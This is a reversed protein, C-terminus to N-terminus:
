NAACLVPRRSTPADPEAGRRALFRPVDAGPIPRGLYYGQAEDYGEASVRALQEATEVGEATTTVGLSVGLDAVVRVIAECDRRKGLDSVFSRDIKIRDFPFSRLYSLSSYGTGFDDMAISLGLSRLQQLKALTADGDQLLVGETIELELRSARLGSTRLASLVSATPNGRKFQVASLNVAVRLEDPWSAADACAQALSWEGIPVILGTDEALAVFADPPIMGRSPHHWRLLAEFGTVAGSPLAVLPQYYLELEGRALAQRLDIELLRRAELWADMEPEFFRFAGRGREKARYLARDAKKLLEDPEVDDTPALAIGVSGGVVVHRGDIEYPSSLTEIIRKALAGATEAADIARQIVAFEDGGLRAVTDDQRVCGRLRDAATRLLADGGSHGLTDNVEKFHDLDICLVGVMSDEHRRAHSLAETLRDGFLARNPLGTLPDHLALHRIREEARRRESIDRIAVVRASQGRYDLSRSLLEVPIRGGDLRLLEAELVVTGDGALHNEVKTRVEPAFLDLLATGVVADRHRGLLAALSENLDLVTARAHILIGEFTADVLARLRQAERAVGAARRHDAVMGIAAFALILGAAAAVALALWWPSTTQEPLAVLPSPELTLAGMATFHMACIGAALLVAGAALRLPGGQGLAVRLAAAGFGMGFVVSVAVLRVDWTAVAPVQVAAMGTYHMAATGAGLIAGALALRVPTRGLGLSGFGVGALLIAVLTSLATLFPDYAVPLGTDFALMAIFHTAWIGCGTVLSAAILWVPRVANGGRITRRALGLAIWAALLCVLAAVLVLRLDHFQALCTYVRYM